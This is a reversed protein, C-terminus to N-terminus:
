ILAFNLRSDSTYFLPVSMIGLRYLFVSNSRMFLFDCDRSM